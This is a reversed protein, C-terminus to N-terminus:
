RELWVNKWRHFGLRSDPYGRVFPSKLYPHQGYLLPIIPAEGLLIKEARQFLAYRVGNDATRGSAELLRDYAANSWFAWNNGGGTLMTGLFSYADAYDAIWASYAISYNGTQQNQFLTKQEQPLITIHVGLQQAWQAQVAALVRVSDHSDYSLVEIPPLGKGGPYGAEALLRRALDFSSPVPSACTYGMIDPPTFTYGPAAGGRLVDRSIAERDIGVSLARRLKARDFPPRKVNIFLYYTALQDEIHLDAPAERRYWDLRSVPVFYTVSLQGARFALEESDANEIPYFVIRQLRVHAADWYRPNREVVVRSNPTWEKLQFPGNGVLNGARTWRTGKEAMGGFREVVHRPIPMWTNHAAMGLLYPTPEALTLQLTLPDLVKIGVQSFDTLKGENYAEANKIPWLMYSYSAAFAPTLERQMGYAFDGATVPVGDSWTAGPVLHFTYVLGDASIDWRQAAAPVPRATEEEVMTLPEFLAYLINADTYAYCVDPDLDAPEAANGVLLTQTAIGAEANTEHRGCGTLLGCIALAALAPACSRLRM